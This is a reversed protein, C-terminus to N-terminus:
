GPSAPSLDAAARRVESPSKGYYRRFARNFYSVDGFGNALALDSVSRESQASDLLAAHVCKLRASLLFESFTTGSAEFLRQLQRPSLRNAAAVTAVSLEQDDIHQTVYTQIATLRTAGARPPNSKSESVSSNLVLALVNFIHGVVLRRLAESELMQRDDLKRLFTALHTLAENGRLLVRGLFQDVDPVVAAVCAREMRAFMLRGSAHRILDFVQKCSLLCADGERLVLEHEGLVISLPGELNVILLLDDNDTAVMERTRYYATPTFFGTGFRIGPLARLAAEIRFPEESLPKLEVRLLMQSLVERWADHRQHVPYEDTWFRLFRYDPPPFKM